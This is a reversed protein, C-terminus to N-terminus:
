ARAVPALISLQWDALDVFYSKVQDFRIESRSPDLLYEIMEFRDWRGAMPGAPSRVSRRQIDAVIESLAEILDIARNAFGVLLDVNERPIMAAAAAMAQVVVAIEADLTTVPEYATDDTLRFM